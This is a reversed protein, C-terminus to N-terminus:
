RKGKKGKKKRSTKFSTGKWPVAKGFGVFIPGAGAHQRIHLHIAGEQKRAARQSRHEGKVRPNRGVVEWHRGAHTVRM